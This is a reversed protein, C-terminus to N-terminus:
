WDNAYNLLLPTTSSNREGQTVIINAIIGVEEAKNDDESNKLDRVKM